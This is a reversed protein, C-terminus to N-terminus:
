RTGWHNRRVTAIAYYNQFSLALVYLVAFIMGYYWYKSKTDYLCFLCLVLYVLFIGLVYPVFSAKLVLPLWLLSRLCVLPSILTVICGVYYFLAAVPHKKWMIRVAVTTERSWSKKWRLQQRFFQRLTRPVYTICHAGAHYIVEYDRLIYNTLSRDDGFTAPTGMFTQNIWSPLIRVVASRRYASFAGPCCTVVGFVSEAAKMIRHSIYYRVDEMKSIFNDEEIAVLVHGSVAGIKPDAFPQVLKYLAEPDIWSDSDIYVIIDGRAREAGYAMAHRKGKNVEFKVTTLGPYKKKLEEMVTWTGDDSGDDVAFVEILDPPYHAKFCREITEAIHAEENKAAIVISITPFYSNDAPEKYFVCLFARSSFFAVAGLSYVSLLPEYWFNIVNHIKVFVIAAMTSFILAGIALRNNLKKQSDIQEKILRDFRIAYRKAAATPTAERLVKGKLRCRKNEDDVKLENPLTCEVEVADGVKLQQSREIEILVGASTIDVARARIKANGHHLVADSLISLRFHRRRRQILKSLTPATTTQM